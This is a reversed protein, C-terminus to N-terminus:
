MFGCGWFSDADSLLFDAPENQSPSLFGASINVLFTFKAQKEPIPQTYKM